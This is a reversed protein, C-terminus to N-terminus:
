EHKQWTECGRRRSIEVPEIVNLNTVKWGYNNSKYRRTPGCCHEAMRATWEEQSMPGICAALTVSCRVTQSESEALWITQVPKLTRMPRIELTKDGSCIKDLHEKQIWLIDTFRFTPELGLTQLFAANERRKRSNALEYASLSAEDTNTDISVSKGKSVVHGLEELVISKASAQAQYFATKKACEHSRANPAVGSLISDAAQLARERVHVPIADHARKLELIAASFAEEADM